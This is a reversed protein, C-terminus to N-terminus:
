EAPGRPWASNQYQYTHTHTHWETRGGGLNVWLYYKIILDFTVCEGMILFDGMIWLVGITWFDGIIWM